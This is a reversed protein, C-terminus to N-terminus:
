ESNYGVDLAVTFITIGEDEADVGDEDDYCCTLFEALGRIVSAKSAKPM